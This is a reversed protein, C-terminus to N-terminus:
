LRVLFGGPAVTWGFKRERETDRRYAHPNERLFAELAEFPGPGYNPNIPHGNIDADEVIVYDGARLLPTLMRLEALVHEKSHASDLVAFVPAPEVVAATATAATADLAGRLQM